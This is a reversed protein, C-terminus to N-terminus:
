EHRKGKHVLKHCERCLTIGNNIEFRLEPYKSFPKIYHDPTLSLVRM